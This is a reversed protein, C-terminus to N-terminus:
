IYRCLGEGQWRHRMPKLEHLDRVSICKYEDPAIFFLTCLQSLRVALPVCCRICRISLVRNLTPVQFACRRTTPAKSGCTLLSERRAIHAYIGASEERNQSRPEQLLYEIEKAQEGLLGRDSRGAATDSQYMAHMLRLTSWPYDLLTNRCPLKKVSMRASSGRSRETAVAPRRAVVATISQGCKAWIM